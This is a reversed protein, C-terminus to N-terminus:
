FINECNDLESEDIMEVCNKNFVLISDVDWGYLDWYLNKDNSMLVIMADYVKSLKEFDIIVMDVMNFGYECKPLESLKSTKDVVLINSNEKLKFYFKNTDVYKDIGITHNFNNDDCWQKWSYDTDFPSAWLGGSPKVFMERNKINQFLNIDFERHGWHVFLNKM